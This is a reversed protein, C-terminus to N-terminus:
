DVQRSEREGAMSGLLGPDVPSVMFRMEEGTTRRAIAAMPAAVSSAAQSSLGVPLTTMGGLLAPNTMVDSTASM